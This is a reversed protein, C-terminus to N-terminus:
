IIIELIKQVCSLDTDGLIVIDYKELYLDKQTDVYENLFGITLINECVGFCSSMHLDEIRDGLLIVNKRKRVSDFYKPHIKHVEGKNGTMILPKTIGNICDDDGFTLYNSITTVNDYSVNSNSLMHDIVDGLGASLILLPINSAALRGVFEKFGDRHKMKAVAVANHVTEVNVDESIYLDVASRNWERVLAMKEDAKISPNADIPVYKKRLEDLKDRYDDSLLPYQELAGFTSWLKEGDHHCYTLTYDYDWL